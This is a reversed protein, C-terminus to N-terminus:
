AKRFGNENEIVPLREEETREIRIFPGAAIERLVRRIDADRGQLELTVSGDWENRVSGTVGCLAAAQRARRRLGVGQVTGHLVIRRRVIGGAAEERAGTM